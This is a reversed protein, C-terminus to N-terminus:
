SNRFYNSVKFQGFEDLLSQHLLYRNINNDKSMNKTFKPLLWKDWPKTTIEKVLGLYSLQSMLKKITKGDNSNGDNPISPVYVIKQNQGLNTSFRNIIDVVEDSSLGLISLLGDILEARGDNFRKRASRIATSVNSNYVSVIHIFIVIFLDVVLAILISLLDFATLQDFEGSFLHTLNTYGKVIHSSKTIEHVPKLTIVQINNKLASKAYMEFESDFCTFHSGTKKDYISNQGGKIRSELWNNGTIIRQDVQLANMKAVILEMTKIQDAITNGTSLQSTVNKIQQQIKELQNNFAVSVKEDNKRLRWRKGKGFNGIGCTGGTESEIKSQAISYDKLQTTGELKADIIQINIEIQKKLDRLSKDMQMEAYNMEFGAARFYFSSGFGVSILICFFWIIIFKLESVNKYSSISVVIMIQVIATFVGAIIINLYTNEINNNFFKSFGDFTAIWSLVSLILIMFWSMNTTTFVRSLITNNKM